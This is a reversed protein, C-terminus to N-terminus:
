EPPTLAFMPVFKRDGWAQRAIARADRGDSVSRPGAIYIPKSYFFSEGRKCGLINLDANVPKIALQLREVKTITTKQDVAFPGKAIWWNGGRLCDILAEREDSRYIGILTERDFMGYVEDATLGVPVTAIQEETWGANSATSGM